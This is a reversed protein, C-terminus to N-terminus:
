MLFNRTPQMWVLQQKERELVFFPLGLTLSNPVPSPVEIKLPQEELFWTTHQAIMEELESDKEIEEIAETDAEPLDESTDTMNILGTLDIPDTEKIQCQGYSTMKEVIIKETNETGYV